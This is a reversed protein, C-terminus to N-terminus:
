AFLSAELMRFVEASKPSICGDDLLAYADFPKGIAVGRLKCMRDHDLLSLGTGLKLAHLGALYVRRISDRM